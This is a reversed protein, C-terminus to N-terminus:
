LGRSRLLEIVTDAGTTVRQYAILRPKFRDYLPKLVIPFFIAGVEFVDFDKRDVIRSGPCSRQLAVM